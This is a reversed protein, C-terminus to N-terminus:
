GAATSCPRPAMLISLSGTIRRPWNRRARLDIVRGIVRAPRPSPVPAPAESATPAVPYSPADWDLGIRALEDRIWRLAWVLATKQTTHAILRTGDRSFALPTPLIPQLTTLRALERGNAADALGLQNPAIGQAILRGDATFGAPHLAIGDRREHIRRDPDSGWTGVRWSHYVARQRGAYSILWRGDPSFGAEFVEAGGRNGPRL